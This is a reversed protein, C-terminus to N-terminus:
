FRIMSAVLSSARKFVRRISSMSGAMAFVVMTVAYQYLELAHDVRENAEGFNLPAHHLSVRANRRRSPYLFEADAYDNERRRVDQAGQWAL